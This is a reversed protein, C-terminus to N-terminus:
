QRTAAVKQELQDLRHMFTMWDKKKDSPAKQELVILRDMCQQLQDVFPSLWTTVQEAVTHEIQTPLTHQMEGMWSAAAAAAAAAQLRKNIQQKTVSKRLPASQISHLPHVKYIPTNITLYPAHHGLKPALRRQLLLSSQKTRHSHTTPSKSLLTTSIAPKDQSTRERDDDHPPPSLRIMLPPTRQYDHIWPQLFWEQGDLRVPNLVQEVLHVRRSNNIPSLSTSSPTASSMAAQQHLGNSYEMTKTLDLSPISRLLSLQQDLPTHETLQCLDMLLSSKFCTALDSLTQTNVYTYGDNANKCFGSPYDHYLRATKVHRFSSVPTAVGLRELDELCYYYMAQHHPQFGNSTSLPSRSPHASLHPSVPLPFRYLRFTFTADYEGLVLAQVKM